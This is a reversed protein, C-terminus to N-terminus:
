LDFVDLWMSTLACCWLFGDSRACLALVEWHRSPGWCWCCFGPPVTGTGAPLRSERWELLSEMNAAMGGGLVAGNTFGRDIEVEPRGGAGSGEEWAPAASETADRGAEEEAVMFWDLLSFLRDADTSTSSNLISAFLFILAGSQVSSAEKTDPLYLVSEPKRDTSSFKAL